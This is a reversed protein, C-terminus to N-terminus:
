ILTIAYIAEQISAARTYEASRLVWMQLLMFKM